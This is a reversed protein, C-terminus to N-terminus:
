LEGLSATFGMLSMEGTQPTQPANVAYVTLDAKAGRRFVNVDQERLVIEAVCVDQVCFAFPATVPEGSDVRVQLGRTLLVGLPARIRLGTSGEAGEPLKLVEVVFLTNGEAGNVRQTMVCQGQDAEACRVEWDGHTAKVVAETQQQAETQAQAVSALAVTLALAALSYRIM